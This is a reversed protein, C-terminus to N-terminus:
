GRQLHRDMAEALVGALEDDGERLSEMAAKGVTKITPLGHVERRRVPDLVRSNGILAVPSRTPQRDNRVIAQHEREARVFTSIRDIAL